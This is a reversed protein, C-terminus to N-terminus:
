GAPPTRQPGQESQLRVFVTAIASAAHEWAALAAVDSMGYGFPKMVLTYCGGVGFFSRLPEVIM